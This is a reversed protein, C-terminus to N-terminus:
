VALFALITSYEDSTLSSEDAKDLIKMVKAKVRTGSFFKNPNSILKVDQEGKLIESGTCRHLLNKVKKGNM